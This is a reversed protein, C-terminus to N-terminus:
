QQRNGMRQMIAAALQPNIQPAGGQPQMPAQGPTM